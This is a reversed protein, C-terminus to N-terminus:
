SLLIGIVVMMLGIVSLFLAATNIPVVKQMTARMAEDSLGAKRAKWVTVICWILGVLGALSVAAGLWILIEM